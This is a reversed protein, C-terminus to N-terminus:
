VFLHIGKWKNVFNCWVMKLYFFIVKLLKAMSNNDVTTGQAFQFTPAANYPYSPPFSVQLIVVHANRTATVTCSRRVADM